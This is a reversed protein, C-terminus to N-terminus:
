YHSAVAKRNKLKDIIRSKKYDFKKIEILYIKIENINVLHFLNVYVTRVDFQQVRQLGIGAQAILCQCLQSVDRWGGAQAADLAQSICPQNFTFHRQEVKLFESVDRAVPECRNDLDCKVALAVLVQARKFLTHVAICRHLLAVAHGRARVKYQHHM